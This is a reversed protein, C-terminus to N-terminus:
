EAPIMKILRLWKEVDKPWNAPASKGTARLGYGHGGDPYVHLEAPV